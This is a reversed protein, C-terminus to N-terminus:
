AVGESGRESATVTFKANRDVVRTPGVIRSLADTYALHTNFVTWLEGGPRLVRASAEFLRLASGTHVAAGIHFPPNCVVLDSTAAPLSGMADDRVVTVRDEVHNAAATAAASKVAASSQDTAIVHLGPRRTALAAAVLGTGCGLDIATVAGSRMQDVFGLLFRTGIDVKTGGFAGGHACIWLGLDAHFQRRPYRDTNQSAPEPRSATLVRSKQRALSAQVSRFHLRLTSSQAGTM